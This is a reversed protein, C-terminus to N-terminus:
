KRRKTWPTSWCVCWYWFCMMCHPGDYYIYEFGWSRNEPKSIWDFWYVYYCYDDTGLTKETQWWEISNWRLRMKWPYQKM